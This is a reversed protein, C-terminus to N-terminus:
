HHGSIRPPIQLCTEEPNGHSGVGATVGHRSSVRTNVTEELTLVEESQWLWSIFPYKYGNMWGDTGEDM